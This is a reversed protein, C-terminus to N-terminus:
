DTLRAVARAINSRAAAEYRERFPATSYIVPRELFNALIVRRAARYQPEPIFAYERRIAAAYDDFMGPASGLIALDSDVVYAADQEPDPRVHHATALILRRIRARREPAVGARAFIAEALDASREENDAARPDYEADHLWIAAEAEAPRALRARVTDLEALCLAVHRFTHYARAPEAHRMVLDDYVADSSGTADLDAWLEHWRRRSPGASM